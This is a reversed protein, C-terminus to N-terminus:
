ATVCQFIMCVSLCTVTYQGYLIWKWLTVHANMKNVPCPQNSHRTLNGSAGATLQSHHRTPWMSRHRPKTKCWKRYTLSHQSMRNHRCVMPTADLTISATSHGEQVATQKNVTPKTYQLTASQLTWNQDCCWGTWDKSCATLSQVIGNTIYLM